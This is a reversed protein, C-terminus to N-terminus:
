YIKGQGFFYPGVIIESKPVNEGLTILSPMGPNGRLIEFIFGTQHPETMAGSQYDVCGVVIPFVRKTQPLKAEPPPWVIIGSDSPKAMGVNITWEKTDGSVITLADESTLGRLEVRYDKSINPKSCLDRQREMPESFIKQGWQSFYETYRVKVKNAPLRGINKMAISFAFSLGGDRFTIPNDISAVAVSISARQSEILRQSAAFEKATLDSMSKTADAQKGAAIALDHTNTTQTGASLALNHTDIGGDHMEKLQGKMVSWQLIGVAVSCLAFLAIAATLGIMWIEGKKVRDELEEVKGEVGQKGVSQTDPPNPPNPPVQAPGFTDGKPHKDSTTKDEAREAKHQEKLDKVVDIQVNSEVYVQREISEKNGQDDPPRTKPENKHM